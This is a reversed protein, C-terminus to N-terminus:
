LTYFGVNFARAGIASQVRIYTHGEISASSSIQLPTTEFFGGSINQGGNGASYTVTNEPCLCAGSTLHSRVSSLVTSAACTRQPNIVLTNSFKTYHM